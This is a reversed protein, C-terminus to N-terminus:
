NFFVAKMKTQIEATCLNGISGEHTHVVDTSPNFDGAEIQRGVIKYADRFPVGNLVLKNVEEVSFLYQYKEDKVIGTKIGIHHLMYDAIQLCDKLDQLAPFLSEKLLQFDRHYGAPLNNITMSIETPLSQLKNCKARILEFVDPNQMISSGTTLEDPFSIFSYNQNTYLCVDM